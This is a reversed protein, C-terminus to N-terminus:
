QIIDSYYQRQDLRLVLISHSYGLLSKHQVANNNIITATVGSYNSERGHRYTASNTKNFKSLRALTLANQLTISEQNKLFKTIHVKV